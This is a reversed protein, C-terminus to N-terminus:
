IIIRSRAATVPLTTIAVTDVSIIYAIAYKIAKISPIFEITTLTINFNDIINYDAKHHGAPVAM